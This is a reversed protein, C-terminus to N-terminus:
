AAAESVVKCYNLYWKKTEGATHVMAYDKTRYEHLSNRDIHVSTVIGLADYRDDADWRHYVEQLVIVDGVKVKM